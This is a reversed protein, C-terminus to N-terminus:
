DGAVVRTVFGDNGRAEIIEQFHIRLFEKGCNAANAGNQGGVAIGGDFKQHAFILHLHLRLAFGVPGGIFADLSEGIRPLTQLNREVGDKDHVRNTCQFGFIHGKAELAFHLGKHRFVDFIGRRNFDDSWHPSISNKFSFFAVLSPSFLRRKKVVYYYVINPHFAM